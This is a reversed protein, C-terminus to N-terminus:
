IAFHNAKLILTFLPSIQFTKSILIFNSKGM